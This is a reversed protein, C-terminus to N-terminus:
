TKMASQSGSSFAQIILFAIGLSICVDQVSFIGTLLNGIGFNM